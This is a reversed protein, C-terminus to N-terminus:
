NDEAAGAGDAQHAQDGVGGPLAVLPLSECMENLSFYSKHIFILRVKLRNNDQKQLQLLNRLKENEARIQDMEDILKSREEEKQENLM